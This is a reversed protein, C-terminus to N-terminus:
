ASQYDIWGREAMDILTEDRLGSDYMCDTCHPMGDIDFAAENPCDCPVGHLTGPVRCPGPQAVLNILM